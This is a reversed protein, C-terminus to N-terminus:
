NAVAINTIDTAFFLYKLDNLDNEFKGAFAKVLVNDGNKTRLELVGTWPKGENLSEMAIDFTNKSSLIKEISKGIIDKSEYALLDKLIENSNIINLNHDIELQLNTANILFEKNDQERQSRQMEEQTAQLEEMNQRMEEEQSRLQETMQTSEELLKQTRENIKVSSITSAISEALKEIFDVHYPQLNNFSALEIVGFVEENVKLPVIIICNPNAEGLGSTITIYNDPVDTLFITSKEQWSQGALGDGKYINQELYKKKDWAYCSTLRMYPEDDKDENIIFLAGQNAQLYKVLHSIIEDSLKAINDNNKRLIEGFKAMGETAWNRRKDEEAVKELNNRMEILSNGLVDEKSLPQYEANYIGKGINEAFLSTSQLGSVLNDVAIKMEGIEDNGFSKGNDEPLEGSGLKSIINKIYNIPNTISRSLFFSGILSVVILIVSLTIMTKRLNEFSDILQFEASQVEQTKLKNIEQLSSILKASRPLIEYDITEVAASQIGFDEYDDFSNLSSMLEQEIKLLKEFSIFISDMMLKQDKEEWKDTLALIEGKLRPYERLHLEKLAAKDEENSQLYVWNTILMKSRTVLLTFQNMANMSPDIVEARKEIISHSRNLTLISSFANLTFILILIMFGGQIKKSITLRLKKM